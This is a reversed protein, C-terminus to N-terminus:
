SNLSDVVVDYNSNSALALCRIAVVYKITKVIQDPAREKGEFIRINREAWIYYVAASLSGRYWITKWHKRSGRRHTWYLETILDYSRQPLKMWSLLTCWVINSFPCKFFLHRHTENHTKSLSCRNVIHIGRLSLLDITPLKHQAALTSILGHSPTISKGHLVHAWPLPAGHSRFLEYAHSVSFRGHITCSRLWFQATQVDGLAAICLDRVKLISRFSDSHTGSPLVDWISTRHLYYSHIWNVWVGDNRHDINWILKALLAKNWALIERIDFGGEHRPLCMSSWSKFVHRHRNDSSWFFNRCLKNIQNVVLKPLLSSSCWYSHLGFIVSNLLQIKGAYTLLNVSWHQIASMIKSLLGSYMDATNRSTNLPAGLYRFPFSGEVFSSKELILQKVPASVGGFYIETKELNASLGSNLAFRDLTSKVSM